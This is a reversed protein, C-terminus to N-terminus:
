AVPFILSIDGSNVPGGTKNGKAGHSEGSHSGRLWNQCHYLVPVHVLVLTLALALTHTHIHTHTRTHTHKYIVCNLKSRYRKAMKVCTIIM